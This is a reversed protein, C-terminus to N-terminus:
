ESVVAIESQDKKRFFSQRQHYYGLIFLGQEELNLHMPFPKPLDLGDMIKSIEIEHWKGKENLKAIHHNKLKMLVPFVSGPTSSASSFYSDKITKNIKKTLDDKRVSDEQTRELLAFLRGLRYATNTSEENLSVKLEEKYKDSRRYKRTLYAKIVAVRTYNIGYIKKDRNDQEAKIRRLIAAYLDMSYSTGTIIARMLAGGLLPSFEKSDIKGEKSKRVTEGLIKWLPIKEKAYEPIGEIELDDYHQQIKKIFDGFNDRHFFRVSLRANNPSLGLIYFKTDEKLGFNSLNIGQKISDLIDFIMGETKKDVEIEPQNENEDSDNKFSPNLLQCIIDNYITKESQAWFVTSADAIQIKQKSGKELMYNLVTAYKFASKEGVPSNYSQDKDYSKYADENFGVLSAGASQANWVGRIKPHTRAIIAEEGTVLCQTLFGEKEQSNYNQWIEQIAPRNHIYGLVGDLTFVINKPKIVEKSFRSITELKEFVNDLNWNNLFNIIAIAGVDESNELLKIHFTKFAEFYDKKIEKENVGLVYDSKDVLFYPPPNKGSRLKQEPVMMRKPVLKKIIKKGKQEEQEKRLDIFNLIEGEKTLNIAFNVEVSSFNEKAIADSNESLIDYYECLANIIM